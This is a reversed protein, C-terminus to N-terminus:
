LQSEGQLTRDIYRAVHLHLVMDPHYLSIFEKLDHLEVERSYIVEAFSESLYKKMYDLFSDGIVLIRMNTASPCVTRTLQLDASVQENVYNKEGQSCADTITLGELDETLVGKLGLLLALDGSVGKITQAHVKEESLPVIAPYWTKVRDIIELYSLYAGRDNWHTDTKYYLSGSEKHRQMLTTLDLFHSNVARTDLFSSIQMSKTVGRHEVLRSPLYESYVSTKNPAVVLLYNGDWEALRAQRQELIQEWQDLRESSVQDTGLFDHLEWDGANFLWGDKGIIVMFNPSTGFLRIRLLSNLSVLPFRKFFHDNYYIEFSKTFEKLAKKLAIDSRYWPLAPFSALERKETVSFKQKESLITGICPVALTFLFVGILIKHFFSSLM